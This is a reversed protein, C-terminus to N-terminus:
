SSSYSCCFTSSSGSRRRSITSSISRKNLRPPSRGRATRLVGVQLRVAGVTELAPRLLGGLDPRHQEGVRRRRVDVEGDDLLPRGLCGHTGLEDQRLDGARRAGQREHEDDVEEQEADDVVVRRCLQEAAAVEAALLDVAPSGLEVEVARLELLEDGVDRWVSRPLRPSENRLLRGTVVSIRSASHGVTKSTPVAVTSDITIPM